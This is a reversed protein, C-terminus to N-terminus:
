EKKTHANENQGVSQFAVNFYEIPGLLMPCHADLAHRDHEAAVLRIIHFSFEEGHIILCSFSLSLFIWKRCVGSDDLRGDFSSFYFFFEAHSGGNLL